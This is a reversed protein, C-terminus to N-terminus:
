NPEIPNGCHPCKFGGFIIKDMLEEDELDIETPRGCKGCIMTM